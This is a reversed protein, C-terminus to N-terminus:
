EALLKKLLDNVLGPNAAGKTAKMVQGVFFGLLKENGAKYQAVQKANAALVERVAGEIAGADSVQALGKEKVVTEADSGSERMAEFVDKAMKGSITGAQVLALLGAVREAPVPFTASLGFTTAYRLVESQVFNAVRKGAVEKAEGTKKMLAACAQEFYGAIEPHGTLVSADYATLGLETRFRARMAAPLEPVAARAREFDQESIHLPPLDPDPFYRYDHAEEKSRM